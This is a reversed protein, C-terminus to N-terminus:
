KGAKAGLAAHASEYGVAAYYNARDFFQELLQLVEIEGFVEASKDTVAESSLYELLYQKTINIACILQSLPVGQAARRQGIEVYRREIDAETKGLLWEGLSHYIEYVRQKFEEAPVERFCSAKPSQRLKELAGEALQDSHTEILRVLRYALLM